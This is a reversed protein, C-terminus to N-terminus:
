FFKLDETNVFKFQIQRISWVADKSMSKEVGDWVDFYNITHDRTISTINCFHGTNKYPVQVIYQSNDDAMSPVKKGLNTHKCFFFKEFYRWYIQGISDYCLNNQLIENLSEPTLHNNYGDSINCLANTLSVLLCGYEGITVGKVMEINNWKEDTQKYKKKM